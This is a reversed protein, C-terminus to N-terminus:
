TLAPITHNKGGSSHQSHNTLRVPLRVPRCFKYIQGQWLKVM